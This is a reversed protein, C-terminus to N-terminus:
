SGYGLGAVEVLEAATENWEWDLVGGAYLDDELWDGGEVEGYLRESEGGREWSRDVM